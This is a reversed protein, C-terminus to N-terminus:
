KRSVPGFVCKHLNNSVLMFIAHLLREQRRHVSIM